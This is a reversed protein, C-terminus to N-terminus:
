LFRTYCFQLYQKRNQVIKPCWSHNVWQDFQHCNNVGVNRRVEFNQSTDKLREYSTTLDQIFMYISIFIGLINFIKSLSDVPNPNKYSIYSWILFNYSFNQQLNGLYDLFTILFNIRKFQFLLYMKPSINHFKFYISTPTLFIDSYINMKPGNQLMKWVIGFIYRYELELSYFARKIKRKKLKIKQKKSTKTLDIKFM